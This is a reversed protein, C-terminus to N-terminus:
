DGFSASFLPADGVVEEADAGLTSLACSKDAADAVVGLTLSGVGTVDREGALSACVTDGSLGVVDLVPSGVGSVGRESGEPACVVCGEDDLKYPCGTGVVLEVRSFPVLAGEEALLTSSSSSDSSAAWSLKKVVRM